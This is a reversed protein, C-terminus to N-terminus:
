SSWNRFSFNIWAEPGVSHGFYFFFMVFNNVSHFVLGIVEQLESHLRSLYSFIRMMKIIEPEPFFFKDVSCAADNKHVGNRCSFNIWAEPGGAIAFSFYEKKLM